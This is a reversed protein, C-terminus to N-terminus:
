SLRMNSAATLYKSQRTCSACALVCMGVFAAAM